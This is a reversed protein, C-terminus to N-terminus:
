STKVSWGTGSMAYDIAGFICRNNSARRGKQIGYATTGSSWTAGSDGNACTNTTEVFRNGGPVNAPSVNKNAITGCTWGSTRGNMCVSKGVTMNSWPRTATVSRAGPNFPIRFINQATGSSLQHISVDRRNRVESFPVSTSYNTSRDTYTGADNCRGHGASLVGYKLGSTVIFAASCGNSFTGGGWTTPTSSSNETVALWDAVTSGHQTTMAGILRDGGTGPAGIEVRKEFPDVSVVADIGLRDREAVVKLQVAELTVFDVDAAHHRLLDQRSFASLLTRAEQSLEHTYSANVTFPNWSIWLQLFGPLETLHANLEGIEDILQEELELEHEPVGLENALQSTTPGPSLDSAGPMSPAGVVSSQGAGVMSVTALLLVAVRSLTQRNM